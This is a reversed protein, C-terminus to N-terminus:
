DISADPLANGAFAGSQSRIINFGRGRGSSSGDLSLNNVACHQAGRGCRRSDFFSAFQQGVKVDQQMM